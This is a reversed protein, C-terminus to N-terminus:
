NTNEEGLYDGIIVEFETPQYCQNLMLEGGLKAILDKSISLGMGSGQESRRAQSSRFGYQFILKTETEEVGIGYDQFVIRCYNESPLKEIKIDIRFKSPDKGAYKISNMLLNYFVQNLRVRDTKIKLYQTSDVFRYSINDYSFNRDRLLPKLQKIVKIIENYISVSQITIRSAKRNGMMVELQRVQYFLLETDTVIDDLKATVVDPRLDQWRRSLIDAHNRIGLIPNRLEHTIIELLDKKRKELAQVAHNVFSELIQVDREYIYERYEKQYGCEVTGIAQDNAVEIMPIFVRVLKDHNFDDALQRDLREDNARPVEIKRNRIIDAQIDDSDLPHIARKKFNEERELSSIGKVYKSEITRQELNVLSIHVIDNFQLIEIISDTVLDIIQKYDKNEEAIEREKTRLQTLKFNSEVDEIRIAAYRTLNKLLIGDAESFYNIKIHEISLVGIRKTGTEIRTEIRVPINELVIPIAIESRMKEWSKLYRDKWQPLNNDKVLVIKKDKLAKGVIGEGWPIEQLKSIQSPFSHTNVIKGTPYDLKFISGHKAGVLELAGDLLIKLIKDIDQAETMKFIIDLLSRYKSRKPNM